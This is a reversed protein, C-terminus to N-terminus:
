GVDFTAMQEDDMFQCSSVIWCKVSGSNDVLFVEGNQIRLRREEDIGFGECHKM